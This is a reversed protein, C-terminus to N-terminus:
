FSRSNGHAERWGEPSNKLLCYLDVDHWRGEYYRHQRLTSEKHFGLKTLLQVSATNQPAVLAELRNFGKENFLYGLVKRLARTMIGQQWYDKNLDYCIEAKEGAERFYCGIAGIMRDQHRDAISWYIGTNKYFLSRCYELESQAEQINKPKSALIYLGVAPDSYYHFFDAADKPQHERLEFNADININPFNM